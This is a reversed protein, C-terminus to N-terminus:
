ETVASANPYLELRASLSVAWDPSVFKLSVGPKVHRMKGARIDFGEQRIVRFRPEDSAEHMEQWLMACM